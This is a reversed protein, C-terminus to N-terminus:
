DINENIMKYLQEATKPTNSSLSEVIKSGDLSHPGGESYITTNQPQNDFVLDLNVEMVAKNHNSENLIAVLRSGGYATTLTSFALRHQDSIKCLVYYHSLDLDSLTQSFSLFQIDSLAKSHWFDPLLRGLWKRLEPSAESGAFGRQQWDSYEYRPTKLEGELLGPRKKLGDVGATHVQYWFDSVGNTMLLYPADVNQNYRAVQEATKGSIAIHEAKCEVLLLPDFRQNYCIIDTRMSSKGQQGIAEETSIRHRSWGALLLSEIIRLRVREEPRNKLPKRHIPNWLKKEGERWVMQPYTHEAISDM